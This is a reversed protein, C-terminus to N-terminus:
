MGEARAADFGDPLTTRYGAVFAEDFDFGGRFDDLTDTEQRNLLNAEVLLFVIRGWDLCDQVGWSRWVQATLPGFLQLGYQRMGELVEQGTVHRATGEAGEKGALRIAHNLSEFLFRYAEYAYRGDELAM